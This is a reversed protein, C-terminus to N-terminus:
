SSHAITQYAFYDDPFTISVTTGDSDTDTHTVFDEYNLITYETAGFVPVVFTFVLFFVSLFLPVIRKIM